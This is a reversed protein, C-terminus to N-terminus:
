KPSPTLLDAVANLAPTAVNQALWSGAQTGIIEFVSSVRTLSKHLEYFSGDTKEVNIGFAKLRKEQESYADNAEKLNFWLRTFEGEPVGAVETGYQQAMWLPMNKNHLANVIDLPTRGSIANTGTMDRGLLKSVWASVGPNGRLAGGVSAVANLTQGPALGIMSGANLMQWVTAAGPSQLERTLHYFEQRTSAIKPIIGLLTGSIKEIATGIFMGSAITKVFGFSSIENNLGTISNKFGTAAHTANKTNPIWLGLRKQARELSDAQLKETAALAANADALGKQAASAKGTVNVIQEVQRVFEPGNSVTPTIGVEALFPKTPEDAM